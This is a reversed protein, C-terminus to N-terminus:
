RAKERADLFLFFGVLVFAVVAICFARWGSAGYSGVIATGLVLYLLAGLVYTM